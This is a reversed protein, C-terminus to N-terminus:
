FPLLFHVVISVPENTDSYLIRDQFITPEAKLWEDDNDDSECGSFM